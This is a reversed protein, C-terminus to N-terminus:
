KINEVIRDLLVGGDNPVPVIPVGLAAQAEELSVDDLFVHAGHRLMVEPILVREGLERGSLTDLLDRGTVLGAVNVSEGFFRNPVPVVQWQFVNDCKKELADILKTLFPAASVGTAITFPAILEDGALQDLACAFEEMLLALLGVGNELQPYDEYYSDPPIERGAKIYLEDACFILRTGHRQMCEEALTDVQDIIAQACAADVPELPSLGERYRTLGVPVVSVSSVAPALEALDRLSRELVEGDNVGPCVVIQCNMTLNAQAFRKLIHLCEGARPNGLMRRRVEPDTAQVSVNVPSIRMRIMREIDRDSLNTLSIYNGMLFSMRADDDKFYLTERMGPPLQDIFCFICRNACRKAKDMLYSEFILGLDEGEQKRIRVIRNQLRLSLVADYAYFKYDLVDSISHGNIAVLEDGPRIKARYAPSGREVERIKACM